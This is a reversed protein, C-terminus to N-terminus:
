RSANAFCGRSRLTGSCLSHSPTRGSHPIGGEPYQTLVRYLAPSRSLSSGAPHSAVVGSQPSWSWAVCVAQSGSPRARVGDRRIATGSVQVASCRVCHPVTCTLAAFPATNAAHWVVLSHPHYWFKCTSYSFSVKGMKVM